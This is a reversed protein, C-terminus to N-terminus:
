GRSKRPAKSKRIKTPVSSDPRLRVPIVGPIVSAAPSVPTSAEFKVIFIQWATVFLMAFMPGTVFGGMGFFIFGGLASLLVLFNPLKTDRGVLLLHLINDTLGIATPGYTLLIGGDWYDGTLLLYVAVPGWVLTAGVAPTLALVTM